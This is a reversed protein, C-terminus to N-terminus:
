ASSPMRSQQSHSSNLRTSKRDELDFHVSCLYRMMRFFPMYYFDEIMRTQKSKNIFRDRRRNQEEIPLNNFFEIEDDYIPDDDQVRMKVLIFLENVNFADFKHMLEAPPTELVECALSM